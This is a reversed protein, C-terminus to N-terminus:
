EGEHSHREGELVISVISYGIICILTALILWDIWIM